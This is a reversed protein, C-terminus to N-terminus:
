AKDHKTMVQWAKDHQVCEPMGPLLVRTVSVIAVPATALEALKTTVALMFHQFAESIQLRAPIQRPQQLAVYEQM